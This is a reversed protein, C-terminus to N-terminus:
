GKRRFHDFGQEKLRSRNKGNCHIWINGRGRIIRGIRAISPLERPYNKELLAAKSDPVAFLLEFDEGGHLALAVPDMGWSSADQFLPLRAIDIEAGVGGAVCMRALDISLGDSLDMMCRVMGSQALWIGSECRSEPQRHSRLAERQSRTRPQLRGERLLRLGAASRGLIGTVYLADGERSGSRYLVKGGVSEGIATISIIIGSESSSLDGGVLLAGHRDGQGTLGRYFETIWRRSIESPLGLSVTFFRPRGGMAALDSLNISISKHGLKRPTTWECRFDVNEVLMDTTVLWYEGTNKQHIVAADDGIGKKIYENGVPIRNQLMRIIENESTPTISKPM